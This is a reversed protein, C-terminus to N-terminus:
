VSGEARYASLFTELYSRHHAFDLFPFSRPLLKVCRELHEAVLDLRNYRPDKVPTLDELAPDLGTSIHLSWTYYSCPKSKAVILAPDIYFYQWCRVCASAVMAHLYEDISTFPLPFLLGSDYFYFESPIEGHRVPVCGYEPMYIPSAPATTGSFWSMNQPTEALDAQDVLEFARHTQSWFDSPELLMEAFGNLFFGGALYGEGPVLEPRSWLLKTSSLFVYAETKPSTDLDFEQKLTNLREKILSDYGSTNGTVYKELLKYRQEDIEINNAHNKVNTIFAFLRKGTEM